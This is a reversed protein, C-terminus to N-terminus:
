QLVNLTCSTSALVAELPLINCKGLERMDRARNVDSTTYQLAQKHKNFFIKQEAGHSNTFM